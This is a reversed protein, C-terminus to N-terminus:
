SPPKIAESPVSTAAEGKRRKRRVYYAGGGTAAALIAIAALIWVLPFAPAAVNFEFIDSETENGAKDATEVFFAVKAGTQNGIVATWNGDRNDTMPITFMATANSYSLIVQDIGSAGEPEIVTINVVINDNVIPDQPTWTPVGLTPQYPDVVEYASKESAASNGAKDSAEIRYRIITGFPHAPITARYLGASLKMTVVEQVGNKSYTLAADGIGSEFDVINASVSVTDNYAPTEPMRSVSVIKPPRRELTINLSVTATREL